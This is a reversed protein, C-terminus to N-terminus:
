PTKRAMFIESKIFRTVILAAGAAQIFVGTLDGSLKNREALLVQLGDAVLAFIQEDHERQQQQVAVLPVREMGYALINMRVHQQRQLLYKALSKIQSTSAALMVSDQAAAIIEQARSLVVNLGVINMAYPSPRRADTQRLELLLADATNLFSKKINGIIEEAALPAYTVPRSLLTYIAKKEVLKQLTQYVMSRPVGSAKSIQYGTAPNNYLLALYVKAEYETFGLAHLKGLVSSMEDM